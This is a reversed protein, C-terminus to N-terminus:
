AGKKNDIKVGELKDTFLYKLKEWLTHKPVIYGYEAIKTITLKSFCEESNLKKPDISHSITYVGSPLTINGQDLEILRSDDSFVNLDRNNKNMKQSGNITVKLM